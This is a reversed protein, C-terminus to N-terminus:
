SWTRYRIRSRKVTGGIDIDYYSGDEVYVVLGNSPVNYLASIETGYWATAFLTSSITSGSSTPLTATTVGTLHGFGDVTVNQIVTGGSYSTNTLTSTDDHSVTVNGTLTGGGTLGTGTLVSRSLNNATTVTVNYNGSLRASAVTGSTLNSANLDGSFSNATIDGNANVVVRDHNDIGLTTLTPVTENAWYVNTANTKLVQGASGLSGNAYVGSNLTLDDTITLDNQISINNATITGDVTLDNGDLNISAVKYSGSTTDYVLISNNAPSTVSTVDFNPVFKFALKNTTNNAILVSHTSNAGKIQVNAALGLSTNAGSFSANAFLALKQFTANSSITVVDAAGIAGGSLTDVYLTESQISGNVVVNGQNDNPSLTVIDNSLADVLVNTKILWDGFTNTNAVLNASSITM